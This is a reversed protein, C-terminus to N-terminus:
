CHYTAWAKESTTATDRNAALADTTAVAGGGPPDAALGALPVTCTMLGDACSAVRANQVADRMSCAVAVPPVAVL